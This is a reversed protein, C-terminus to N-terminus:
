GRKRSADLLTPLSGDFSWARVEIKGLLQQIEGRETIGISGNAELRARLAHEVQITAYTLADAESEMAISQTVSPSFSSSGTRCNIEWSVAWGAPAEVVRIHSECRGAKGLLMSRQINFVGCDNM